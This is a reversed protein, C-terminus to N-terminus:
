GDAWRDEWFKVRRGDGLIWQVRCDFWDGRAGKGCVRSLDQWWLSHNSHALNSKLNQWDGYRATLVERWLGDEM